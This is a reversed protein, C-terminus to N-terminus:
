ETSILHLPSLSYFLSVNIVTIGTKLLIIAASKLNLNNISEDIAVVKVVTSPVELILEYSM